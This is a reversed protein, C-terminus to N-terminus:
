ERRSPNLSQFLILYKVKSQSNSRSLSIVGGGGGGGDGTLGPKDKESLM